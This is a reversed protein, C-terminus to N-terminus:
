VPQSITESTKFICVQYMKYFIYKYQQLLIAYDHFCEQVNRKLLNWEYGSNQFVTEEEVM